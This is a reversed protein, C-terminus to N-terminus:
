VQFTGESRRKGVLTDYRRFAHDTRLQAYARLTTATSRHGLIRRITEIDFPNADLYFKGAFQRFLHAHMVLGTEAKVFRAIAQSFDISCRKAGQANPFLFPSPAETLVPRFRELYVELLVATQQPLEMEFPERTKTEEPTFVIHYRKHQGHRYELLHRELEIQTLNRVRMPAVLLIEVALARMVRLAQALTPKKRRNEEKFVCLPLNLLAAVNQPLDFQKLRRRNKPTMGAKKVHLGKSMRVLKEAAAEDRVWHRAITRLLRAQGELHVGTTGGRRCLLHRLAAEANAPQVLVALSTLQQIPFGTAVLASAVQQLQKRRLKLTDPRVPPSYADSFPDPDSCNAHFDAAEARFSDPFDDWPLSYRRPDPELPVVVSPWGGVTQAARNWLRLSTRYVEVPNRRLSRAKLAEGFAEIHPRGVDRPAVGERSFYSLMRSLGIRSRQDPLREALAKWLPSWGQLDRSPLVDFGAVALASLLLSKVRSWRAPSVGATLPSAQALLGNLAASQTTVEGLRRGLVKATTRLASRMDATKRDTPLNERLWAGLEALNAPLAAPEMEPGDGGAPGRAPEEAELTSPEEAPPPATQEQAAPTLDDFPLTLQM